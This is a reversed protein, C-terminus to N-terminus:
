MGAFPEIKLTPDVQAKFRKATQKGYHALRGGHRRRAQGDLRLADEAEGGGRGEHQERGQRRGGSFRCRTLSCPPRGVFTRALSHSVTVWPHAQVDRASYRAEANVLLMKGILEQPCPVLFRLELHASPARQSFARM